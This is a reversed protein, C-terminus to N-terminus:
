SFLPSFSIVHCFFGDDCACFFGRLERGADYPATEAAPPLVAIHALEAKAADTEALHGRVLLDRAYFFSGPLLM